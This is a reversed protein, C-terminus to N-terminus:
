NSKISYEKIKYQLTRLAIGLRKAARKRNGNEARIAKEIALRELEKLNLADGPDPNETSSSESVLGSVSDEGIHKLQIEGGRSLIYARELVNQLERVNGPWERSLLANRVESSLGPPTRDVGSGLIELFHLALPIIDNPRERLPPLKLPFVNIRFFLDRRFEGNAVAKELDKNTSAILRVDVDVPQESGVPVMQRSEIVRLLKAQLPLTMEGVEDLLLTGRDAQKFFGEHSDIAGTFAGKEHGFLQSELLSDPIAACNLAVFPGGVRSSRDHIYRALVEKGTGSEGVILVSTSRPAVARAMELLELFRPDAGVPENSVARLGRSSGGGTRTSEFAKKVVKRLTEPSPLPKTLFDFAGLKMAEVAGSVSGYATLVVVPLDPRYKRLNRLLEMGDMGDMKLDSLVVDFSSRSLAALAAKGDEATEVSWGDDKLIDALLKRMAPDDDVVLCLARDQGIRSSGSDDTRKGNTKNKPANVSM